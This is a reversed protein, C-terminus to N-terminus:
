RCGRACAAAAATAASSCATAICEPVDVGEDCRAERRLAFVLLQAEVAPDDVDRVEDRGTEVTRRAQRSSSIRLAGVEQTDAPEFVELAKLGQDRCELAVVLRLQPDDAGAWLLRGQTVSASDGWCGAARAGTPDHAPRATDRHRRRSTGSWSSGPRARSTLRSPPWPAGSTIMSANLWRVGTIAPLLPLM